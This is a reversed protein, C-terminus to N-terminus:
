WLPEEIHETMAEVGDKGITSRHTRIAEEANTLAWHEETMDPFTASANTLAGRFLLKNIMTVAEARTIASEPMFTGDGYGKVIGFRYLEEIAFRAAYGEIDTFHTEALSGKTSWDVKLVRAIILALEARTIPKDPAFTGDPYGGVLGNKKVAEVYDAAWHSSAVDSFAQIGTVTSKLDLIRAFITAIEARTISSDPRFSNDPYGKIYRKDINPFRNSFVLVKLLSKDDEMYYLKNESKITVLFEPTEGRTELKPAQLKLTKSGKAGASLNGLNWTIKLGKQERNDAGAGSGAGIGAGTGAGTGAETSEVTGGAADLVTFGEPVEATLVVNQVYNNKKNFYRIDLSLESEEEVKSRNSYLRVAIDRLPNPTLQIDHHIIEEEVSLIPSTYLLYGERDVVIYYDSFPFVMYAYDGYSDASQPNINDNPAFGKIVPLDVATGPVYGQNRNRQTDAFYLVTKSGPLIEDTIIDTITGYPDILTKEVTVNGASDTIVKLNGLVIRVGPKIEYTIDLIYTKDPDTNTVIVNGDKDVVAEPVKAGPDVPDKPIVKFPTYDEFLVAKGDPRKLFIDSEKDAPIYPAPSPYDDVPPNVIGAIPGVRSSKVPLGFRADMDGTPTVAVPTVEFALYKGIDSSTMQYNIGDAGAILDWDQSAGNWRYWKFIRNDPSDQADGDHDSYSYSGTLTQGVVATGSATVNTAVPKWNDTKTTDYVSNYVSQNGISDKVIVNFYYKTKEDLGTVTMESINKWWDQTGFITGNAQALSLNYVDDSVSYVIKYELDTTPAYNDSAVTWGIKISNKTTLEPVVTLLGGGGPNPPTTDSVPYNNANYWSKTSLEKPGYMSANGAEDKVVIAFKYDTVSQLGSVTTNYYQLTGDTPKISSYLTYHMWSQATKVAEPITTGSAVAHPDVTDASPTSSISGKIWYIIKYLLNGPSSHNDTSEGWSLVTSASTIADVYLKEGTKATNAGVESINGPVPDEIDWWKAYLTFDAAPMKTFTYTSGSLSSNSYWGEFRYGTRIPNAPASIDADYHYTTDAVTSGGNEEFHITYHNVEWKAYVTTDVAPMTSFVYGTTLGSDSYWNVFSHGTKNPNTPKTVATGFDQRIDTVASGGNEEFYLTYQNVNWKAYVTTNVSPMTTFSYSTTLGSDSYWNVFSHGTKTPNTPKTVTTGFDQTIDEIHTGGNEEFHITYQNETWKAYVETNVSPMTSFIYPTTLAAEQYWGSFHYGTKTPDQPANVISGYNGTIDTVATGGNEDFSITYENVTWNAYLTKIKNTSNATTIPTASFNFVETLSSNAYWGGFTYGERTPAPTPASAYAGDLVTISQVTSGGNSSFIVTLVIPDPIWKAYVTTNVAPMTTFSYPNTLAAEQYWGGFTNDSKIPATPASIPAGYDYVANAISTGGNVEFSLTYQNVIWKAYLTIDGAPMTTFSFPSGSLSANDYWGELRYGTRTPSAPASISAGFDYVADAVTTGGNSVYFIKYQNVAWKAYVTTDVAPMTTFTYPTTLGASTYWGSFHHGDKTPDTPNNVVAGYDRTIDSVLTGGNEEFSITYKNVTWKAYLTIGSEPMKDTAFNFSESLIADKYWGGFSYGDKSPDAPKTVISGVDATIDDVTSGGNEEFSMTSKIPTWDATLTKNGTIPTNFDFASGGDKWGNLTYGTRVPAPYPATAYTNSVVTQDPVLSGGGEDFTVTYIPLWKATLNVPSSQFVTTETVKNAGNYWGDFFYGAVQGPDPLPGVPNGPAIYIPNIPALTPSVSLGNNPNFNITIPNTVWIAYLTTNTNIVSTTNYWGTSTAATATSSINWGKLGKGSSNIVEPFQGITDGAIMDIDIPDNTATSAFTANRGDNPDFTLLVDLGWVAYYTVDSNIVTTGSLYDTGGVIRWGLFQYGSRVPVAPMSSGIATNKPVKVSTYPASASDSKFSVTYTDQETVWVAYVNKVTTVVTDPFFDVTTGGSAQSWGKFYYTTGSETKTDMAPLAGLGYGPVASMTQYLAAGDYFNVNVKQGNMSTVPGYAGMDAWTTTSKTYGGTIGGIDQNFANDQSATGIIYRLPTMENVRVSKGVKQMALNIDAVPIKFSVFYDKGSPGFTSDAQTIQFNGNEVPKYQIIPPSIISTTSPSINAGTGTNYIGIRGKVNGTTAVNYIGIFFDLKGDFSGDPNAADVGVFAFKKFALQINNSDQNNLRFRFGIENTGSEYQTYFAPFANNGVIDQSVESNVATQQDNLPDNQGNKPVTPVWDSATFTFARAPTPMFVIQSFLFSLLLITAVFIRQNKMKAPM